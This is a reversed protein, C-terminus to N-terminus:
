SARSAPSHALSVFRDNGRLGVSAIVWADKPVDAVLWEGVREVVREREERRVLNGEGRQLLVLRVAIADADPALRRGRTLRQDGVQWSLLLDRESARVAVIENEGALGDDDDTESPAHSRASALLAEAERALTPDGPRAALLTEYMALARHPHGQAALLRAMAVSVIPEEALAVAPADEVLEADEPEGVDSPATASPAESPSAAHAAPEPRLPPPPASPRVPEPTTLSRAIEFIQGFIRDLAM